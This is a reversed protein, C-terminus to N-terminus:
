HWQQNIGKLKCYAVKTEYDDGIKIVYYKFISNVDENYKIFIASTPLEQRSDKVYVKDGKKFNDM